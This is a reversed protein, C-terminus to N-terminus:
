QKGLTQAGLSMLITASHRADSIGFQNRLLRFIKRVVQRMKPSADPLIGDCICVTVMRIHDALVRYAADKESFFIFAFEKEFLILRLFDYKHFSKGYALMNTQAHILEFLPEFLDTDYNSRSGKMIATMRELGMGTDIHQKPLPQINGNVDRLYEMFVLNWIEVVSQDNNPNVLHKAGDGDLHAYHIESCPGCPGSLGMQWFNEKAGFPLIRDPSVGLM